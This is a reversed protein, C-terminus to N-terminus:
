KEKQMHDVIENRFRSKQTMKRSKKKSKGRTSHIFTRLRLHQIQLLSRYKDNDWPRTSAEILIQWPLPRTPRFSDMVHSPSIFNFSCMCRDAYFQNYRKFLMSVCVCVIFQGARINEENRRKSDASEKLTTRMLVFRRESESDSSRRLKRWQFSTLPDLHRTIATFYNPAHSVKDTLWLFCSLQRRARM